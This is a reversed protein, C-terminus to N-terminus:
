SVAGGDNGHKYARHHQDGEGAGGCITLSWMKNVRAGSLDM